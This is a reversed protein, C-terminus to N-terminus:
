DALKKAKIYAVNDEIKLTWKENEIHGIKIKLHETGTPTGLLVKFLADAEPTEELTEELTLLWHNQTKDNCVWILQNKEIKYGATKLKGHFHKGLATLIKKTINGNYGIRIETTGGVNYIRIQFEM